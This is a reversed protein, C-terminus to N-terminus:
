DSWVHPISGVNPAFHIRLSELRSFLQARKSCFTIEFGGFALFTVRATLTSAAACLPKTAKCYQKALTSEQQDAFVLMRAAARAVGFGSGVM